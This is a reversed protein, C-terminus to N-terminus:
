PRGRGRAERHGGGKWISLLSDKNFPANIEEPTIIGRVKYKERFSEVGVASDANVYGRRLAKKMMVKMCDLVRNVSAPVFGSDKYLGMIWSEIQHRRISGIPSMYNVNENRFRCYYIFTRQKATPRKFLSYPRKPKEM